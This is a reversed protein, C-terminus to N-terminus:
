DLTEAKATWDIQVTAEHWDCKFTAGFKNVENSNKTNIM